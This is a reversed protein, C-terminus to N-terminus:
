EGDSLVDRIYCNECIMVEQTWRTRNFCEQCKQELKEKQTQM